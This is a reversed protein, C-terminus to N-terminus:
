GPSGVMDAVPAALSLGHRDFTTVPSVGGGLKVQGSAPSARM